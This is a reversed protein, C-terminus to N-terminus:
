KGGHLLSQSRWICVELEQKLHLSFLDKKHLLSSLPAKARFHLLVLNRCGLMRKKATKKWQHRVCFTCGWPFAWGKWSVKLGKEWVCSIKPFNKPFNLVQLANIELSEDLYRNRSMCLAVPLIGLPESDKQKILISIVAKWNWLTVM